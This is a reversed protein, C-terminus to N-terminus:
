GAVRLTSIERGIQEFADVLASGNSAKYARDTTTACTSLLSTTTPDTELRFAVTYVLINRAKAAACAALLKNNMATKIASQTHTTGLRNKVAYGFAGYMSKNQNDYTSYTNEGDTMIVLYKANDTETWARGETFPEEPSLVRLGWMVGEPINTMGGAVMSDVTAEIDAKTSTLPLVKQTTCNQNPGSGGSPFQGSYKCLRGQAVAPDMPTKSWNTCKGNKKNTATCVSPQPTCTGGDDVLYSNYYSKGARNESDPEDPAFMPVFLTDPTGTVPVTDATDHPAPRAEVCGGWSVGLDNFLQFRTRPQDVNQMHISSLGNSDMWIANANEPGVNVSAAFPVVGVRVRDTGAAGAFVVDLLNNAASKLDAIPQGGMSGSNDLVLAIEVNSTGRVVRSGTALSLKPVNVGNLLSTLSWGNGKASVTGTDANLVVDDLTGRTEPRTNADYFAQALAKGATDQDALGLKASAALTASDLAIQQRLKENSARGYDVAMAVVLFVFSFAIAFIVATAGQENAAFRQGTRAARKCHTAIKNYVSVQM